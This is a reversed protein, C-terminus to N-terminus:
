GCFAKRSSPGWTLPSSLTSILTMGWIGWPSKVYGKYLIFGIGIVAILAVIFFVIGAGEFMGFAAGSNRTITIEFVGGLQWFPPVVDIRREAALVMWKTFQDVALLLAFIPLPLWKKIM